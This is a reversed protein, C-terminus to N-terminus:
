GRGTRIWCFNLIFFIVGLRILHVIDGNEYDDRHYNPGLLIQDKTLVQISFMNTGNEALIYFLKTIQPPPRLKTRVNKIISM